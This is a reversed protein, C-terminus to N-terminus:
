PLPLVVIMDDAIASRMLSYAFVNQVMRSRKTIIIGSLFLTLPFPLLLRDILVPTPRSVSEVKKHAALHLTSDTELGVGLAGLDTSDTELGVGLAGRKGVQIRADPPRAGREEKGTWLKM